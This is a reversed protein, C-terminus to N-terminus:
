AMWVLGKVGNAYYPLCITLLFWFVFYRGKGRPVKSLANQLPYMTTAMAFLM